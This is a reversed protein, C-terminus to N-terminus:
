RGQKGPAGGVEPLRPRAAGRRRRYVALMAVGAGLPLGPLWPAEPVATGPTTSQAALVAIGHGLLDFEFVSEGLPADAAAYGNWDFPVAVVSDAGSGDLQRPFLKGSFFKGSWSALPLAAPNGQGATPADTAYATVQSWATLFAKGLPGFDAVAVDSTPGPRMVETPGASGLAAIDSWNFELLPEGPPATTGMPIQGISLTNSYLAVGATSGYVDTRPHYLSDVSSLTQYTFAVGAGSGTPPSSDIATSRWRSLLIGSGNQGNQSSPMLWVLGGTSGDLAVAFQNDRTYAALFEAAVRHDPTIVASSFYSASATNSTFQWLLAGTGADYAALTTTPVVIALRGSGTIDGLTFDFVSNNPYPIRFKVRGTSLDVGVVASSTAVVAEPAGNVDAVQIKHIQDGLDTQWLVGPNNSLRTGDLAFLGGSQGGVILDPVGDGNVDGTDVAYIDGLLPLEQLLAGTALSYDRIVQNPDGLRVVPQSATTPSAIYLPFGINGADNWLLAGTSSLAVLDSGTSTSGAAVVVTGSDTAVTRLGYFFPIGADDYPITTANEYLWSQAGTGGDTAVVRGASIYPARDPVASVVADGAVWQADGGGTLDSVQLSLLVTNTRAVSTVISGNAASLGLLTYALVPTGSTGPDAEDDVVVEDHSADYRLIRPYGDTAVSWETAGTAADLALVHGAKVNLGVPTATWAAAIRGGSLPEIALWRAWPVRTTVSWTQTLSVSTSSGTLAFGYLTSRSGAQGFTEYSERLDDGTEDGVILTTGEILVQTVYGPFRTVSLTSGDRGNLITLETFDAGSFNGRSDFGADRVFHAVAVDDVGDANVDGVAYPRESAEVFPDIPSAGLLIVPVTYPLFGWDHTFSYAPRSWLTTGDLRTAVVDGYGHVRVMTGPADGGLPAMAFFSRSTEITAQPVLDFGGAGGAAPSSGPTAASRGGCGLSATPAYRSSVQTSCAPMVAPLAAITLKQSLAGLHRTRPTVLADQGNGARTLATPAHPAAHATTTATTALVLGLVVSATGLCARRTIPYRRAM